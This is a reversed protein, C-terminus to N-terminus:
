QQSRWQDPKGTPGTSFVQRAICPVAARDCTQSSGCAAPCSFGRGVEQALARSSAHRLQSGPVCPGRVAVLPALPVPLGSEAILSLGVVAVFTWHVGFYIYILKFFFCWQANSAQPGPRRPSCSLHPCPARDKIGRAEYAELPAQLNM